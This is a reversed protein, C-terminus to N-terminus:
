CWNSTNEDIPEFYVTRYLTNEDDIAEVAILELMSVNNDLVNTVVWQATQTLAKYIIPEVKTPATSLLECSSSYNFGGCDLAYKVPNARGQSLFYSMLTKHAGFNPAIIMDLLKKNSSM